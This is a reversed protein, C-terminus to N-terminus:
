IWTQLINHHCGLACMLHNLMSATSPFFFMCTKIKKVSRSSPLSMSHLSHLCGDQSHASVPGFAAATIGRDMQGTFFKRAPMRASSWMTGSPSVSSDLSVLTCYVSWSLTTVLLELVWKSTIVQHLCLKFLTVVHCCKLRINFLVALIIPTVQICLTM